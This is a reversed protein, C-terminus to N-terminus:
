VPIVVEPTKLIGKIPSVKNAQAAFRVKSAPVM